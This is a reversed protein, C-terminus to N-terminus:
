WRLISRHQWRACCQQRWQCRRSSANQNCCANSRAGEDARVRALTLRYLRRARAAGSGGSLIRCRHIRFRQGAVRQLGPQLAGSLQRNQHSCPTTPAIGEVAWGDRPTLEPLHRQERIYPRIVSKAADTVDAHFLYRPISALVSRSRRQEIAILEDARTHRSRLIRVSCDPACIAGSSASPPPNPWSFRSMPVCGTRSRPGFRRSRSAVTAHSRRGRQVVAVPSTAM